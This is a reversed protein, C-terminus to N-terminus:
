NKSKFPIFEQTGDSYVYTCLLAIDYTECYFNVFRDMLMLQQIEVLFEETKEKDM